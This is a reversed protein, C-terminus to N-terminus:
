NLKRLRVEIEDAKLKEVLQEVPTDSFHYPYLITPKITRAAEVAQDITMTYPQNVPLFAVDVRGLRSMEKIPETDGAIYICSGGITLVYGNDRGQPHFKQRGESTNYAAVAEVTIKDYYTRTDGNALAEGQKLAEVVDKTGVVLTNEGKLHQATAVDFHDGHHHTYLLIDGQKMKTYDAIDAAPDVYITKGDYTLILSGHGVFTIQLQTNDRLTINDTEYTQSMSAIGFSMLLLTLMLRKMTNTNLHNNFFSDGNSM